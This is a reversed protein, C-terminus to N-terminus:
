MDVFDTYSTWLDLMMERFKQGDESSADDASFSSNMLYAHDDVHSTGSYVCITKKKKYILLIFIKGYDNTTGSMLDSFSTSPRRSIKYFHVPAFQGQVEAAKQADVVFLRDSAM